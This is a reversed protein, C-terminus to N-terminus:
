WQEGSHGGSTVNFIPTRAVADDWCSWNACCSVVANTMLQSVRMVASDLHFCINCSVRVDVWCLRSPYVCSCQGWTLVRGYLMLVSSFCLLILVKVRCWWLFCVRGACIRVILDFIGLPGFGGFRFVLRCACRGSQIYEISDHIQLLM